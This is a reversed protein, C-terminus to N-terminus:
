PRIVMLRKTMLAKGTSDILSYLYTGKRFDSLNLSITKMALSDYSQKWVELGLINYIKLTYNGTTLNTFEFRVNQIAPNPHAYVNPKSPYLDKVSTLTEDSKYQVRTVEETDENVSVIALPEKTTNTYFNYTITTDKGLFQGAGPFFDSINVWTSFIGIGVKAWLSTEREDLRRERLVEFTGAPLTLEGWADIKDERTSETRVRLSDPTFDLMLSDTLISPLDDWAFEISSRSFNTNADNYNMPARLQVTTPSFRAQINIGIGVPDNGVFGILEVESDSVNFYTEGGGNPLQVVLEAESFSAFANGEQAAKYNTENTFVTQLSSFDWVKNEGPEGLEIGTPLNDTGTTVVDDPDPFIANTITIQAQVFVFSLCFIAFSLLAKKM